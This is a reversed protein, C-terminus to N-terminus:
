PINEEQQSHEYYKTDPITEPFRDPSGLNSHIVSSINTKQKLVHRSAEEIMILSRRPAEDIRIDPLKENVAIDTREVAYHLKSLAYKLDHSAQQIKAHHQYQYIGFLLLGALCALVGGRVLPSTLNDWFAFVGFIRHKWTRNDDASALVYASVNDFIHSPPEPRPLEQLAEDITEVLHVEDRCTPCVAIHAKITAHTSLDLEGALYLELRDQVKKCVPNQRIHHQNM